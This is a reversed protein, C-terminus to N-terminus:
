GGPRDVVRAEVVRRLRCGAVHEARPAGDEGIEGHLGQPERRDDQKQREGCPAPVQRQAGHGLPPAGAQQQPRKDTISSAAASDARGWGFLQGSGLPRPPMRPSRNMVPASNMPTSGAAAADKTAPSRKRMAPVESRSKAQPVLVEESMASQAGREFIGLSHALAESPAAICTAMCVPAVMLRPKQHRFAPSPASSSGSSSIAAGTSSASGSGSPRM